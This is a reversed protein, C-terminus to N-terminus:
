RFLDKAPDRILTSASKSGRRLSAGRVLVAPIGEDCQGMLFSAAGALEDAVAIETVELPRGFLDPSGIRSELAVFGASGLTFGSVGNRWARGASDIISVNVYRGTIRHFQEHLVRASRDPDEPLLLVVGEDAVNSADIGANAHVYGLRHQVIMAGQRFRLVAASEALILQVLRPDKDVRNGWEVAEATPQVDALRRQRGEAKSVIKQAVVVLDDDRLELGSRAIGELLLACLDDGEQVLPLGALPYFILPNSHTTM